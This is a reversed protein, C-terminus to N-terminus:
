SLTSAPATPQESTGAAPRAAPGSALVRALFKLTLETVQDFERDLLVCHASQPLWYKEVVRSQVGSAILDPVSAHVTQDLRGQMILIPQRIKGLHPAVQRQLALLQLTGKLPNVPYGQWLTDADMNQKPMWPVFPSALRLRLADWPSLTLRLAPAYVLVAAAEPHRSALYLALLGGASEGGMVVQQCNAQLHHYTEECAQVWDQWHVRNLDEPRTYHGPLLPGAVSYGAAHLRKALPRVEASTATFGHVLLIGQPGAPWDFPGGELQPNHLTL